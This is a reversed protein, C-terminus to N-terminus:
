IRHPRVAIRKVVKYCLIFCLFGIVCGLVNHIIDDVSFVGRTSILQTLEIFLSLVFGISLVNWFNKKKLAGGAFFGIPIFMLVNMILQALLRNYLITYSWFPYLEYRREFTEERFFVTACLVLSYYGILMCFSAHRIFLSYSNQAWLLSVAIGGVLVSVGILVATPIGTNYHLMYRMIYGTDFRM